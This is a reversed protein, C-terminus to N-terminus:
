QKTYRNIIDQQEPAFSEMVRRSHNAFDVVVDDPVEIPRGGERLRKIDEESCVNYLNNRLDQTPIRNEDCFALFDQFKVPNLILQNNKSPQTDECACGALGFGTWSGCSSGPQCCTCCSMFMANASCLSESGQCTCSSGGSSNTLQAM